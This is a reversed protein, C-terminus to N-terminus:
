SVQPVTISRFISTNRSSAPARKGTHLRNTTKNPKGRNQPPDTYLLKFLSNNAIHTLM